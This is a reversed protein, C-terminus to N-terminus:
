CKTIIFLYYKLPKFPIHINLLNDAINSHLKSL